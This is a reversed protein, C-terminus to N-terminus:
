NFSTLLPMLLMYLRSRKAGEVCVIVHVKVLCSLADHQVTKIFNISSHATNHCKGPVRTHEALTRGSIHILGCFQMDKM